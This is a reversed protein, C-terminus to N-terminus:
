EETKPGLRLEVGAKVLQTSYERSQSISPRTQQINLAWDLQEILREIRNVFHITSAILVMKISSDVGNM